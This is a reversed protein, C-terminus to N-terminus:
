SGGFIIRYLVDTRHKQQQPSLEAYELVVKTKEYDLKPRITRKRQGKLDPVADIEDSDKERKEKKL